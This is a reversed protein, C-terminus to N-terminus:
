FSTKPRKELWAKIGENAAVLDHHAKIEPFKDLSFGDTSSLNNFVNFVVIDAYTMKDTVLFGTKNDNKKLIRTLAEVFAPLHTKELAEGLETKKAEDKEFLWKYQKQVFDEEAGVIMDCMAIDLSNVPALGGERAIYTMIALSQALKIKDDIVLLPVQGFPADIEKKIKPWEEFQMRKDEYEIGAAAFALRAPEARGRGDFYYLKYSPM